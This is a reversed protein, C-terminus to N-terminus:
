EETDNMDFVTNLQDTYKQIVSLEEDSIDFLSGFGFQEPSLGQAKTKAMSFAISVREALAAFEEFSIDHKAFLRDFEKKQESVWTASIDSMNSPDINETIAQYQPFLDIFTKVMEETLKSNEDTASAQNFANNKLADLDLAWVQPTLCLILLIVICKKM